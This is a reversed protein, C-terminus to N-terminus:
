GFLEKMKAENDEDDVAEDEPKRGYEGFIVEVFDVRYLPADMHGRNMLAAIIEVARLDNKDEGGDAPKSFSLIHEYVDEFQADSLEDMANETMNTCQEVADRYTVCVNEDEIKSLLLLTPKYMLHINGNIM